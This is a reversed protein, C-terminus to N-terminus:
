VCRLRDPVQLISDIQHPYLGLYIGLRFSMAGSGLGDAVRSLTADDLPRVVRPCLTSM